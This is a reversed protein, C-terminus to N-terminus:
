CDVFASDARWEWTSGWFGAAVLGGFGKARYQPGAVMYDPAMNAFPSRSLTAHHFIVVDRLGAADTGSVILDIHARGGDSTDEWRPATFIVGHNAGRFHCEGVGVVPESGAADSLCTDGAAASCQGVGDAQVKVPWRSRIAPTLAKQLGRPSGVIVLNHTRRVEDTLDQPRLIPVRSHVAMLHGHSMYRASDWVASEFDGSDGDTFCVIAFKGM